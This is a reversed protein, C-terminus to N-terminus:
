VNGATLQFYILVTAYIWHEYNSIDDVMFATKKFYFKREVNNVIFYILM